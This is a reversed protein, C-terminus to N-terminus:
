FHPGKLWYRRGSGLRVTSPQCGCYTKLGPAVKVADINKWIIM